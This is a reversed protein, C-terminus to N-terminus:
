ASILESRTGSNDYEPFWEQPELTPPPPMHEKDLAVLTWGASVAADHATTKQPDFKLLQKITRPFPIRHGHRNIFTKLKAVYIDITEKSAPVGEVDMNRNYHTHTWTSEPRYMLFNGYGRQTFYVSINNKTNEYLLQCSYFFCAKIMDEFYTEVEDPRCIYEFMYMHSEWDKEPKGLDVSADYKRFGHAGANSNRPDVTKTHSIPDTGIAFKHDNMPKPGDYTKLVNNQSQPNPLYHVYFRGGIPDKVFEVQKDQEVWEFNGRTYPLMNEPLRNLESLRQNLVHANFVCEDGGVMFAEELTFPHKRMHMALEAPKDQLDERDNLLMRKSEEIMSRGYEDFKYGKYAPIFYAYLGTVTKGSASSKTRSFLSNYFLKKFADGAEGEMEEVTTPAFIQGVIEGQVETCPKVVFHREYVNITTKGPEEAGYRHLKFGDYSYLGADRFNIKSHLSKDKTKKKPARSGRKVPEKFDLSHKQSSTTDYVPRFFEPLKKWPYIIAQEFVKQADEGTKSQLGSYANPIRSPYEYLFLGLIATKGFRRLTALVVGNSVPDEESYKLLYFIELDVFRFDPLGFDCVWMFVYMWHMGTLYVDDCKKTKPNYISMWCGNIRRDWCEMRFRQAEPHVYGPELDQQAEEEEIWEEWEEPYGIVSRGRQVKREKPPLEKFLVKRSELQGTWYNYVKGVPPLNVTIVEDEAGNVEFRLDFTSGGKHAKFM